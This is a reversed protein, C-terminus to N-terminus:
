EIEEKDFWAYYGRSNQCLIRKKTVTVISVLVGALRFETDGTLVLSGECREYFWAGVKTQFVTLTESM